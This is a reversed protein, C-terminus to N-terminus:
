GRTAKTEKTAPRDLLEGTARTALLDQRARTAKTAPRDQHAKTEKTAPRVLLEGTVRTEKTALSARTEKTAPRDPRVRTALQVECDPHDESKELVLDNITMHHLLSPLNQLNEKEKNQLSLHTTLM